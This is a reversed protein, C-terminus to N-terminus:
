EEGLLVGVPNPIEVTEEDGESSRRRRRAESGEEEDGLLTGLLTRDRRQRRDARPDDDDGRTGTADARAPGPETESGDNPSDDPVAVGEPIAVTQTGSQTPAEAAPAECGCQALQGELEAVRARLASVEDEGEGEVAATETGDESTVEVPAVPEPPTEDATDSTEEACGAVLVLAVSWVWVRM